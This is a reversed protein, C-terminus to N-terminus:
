KAGRSDWGRRRPAEFRADRPGYDIVSGLGSNSAHRVADALDDTKVDDLHDNRAEYRGHDRFLPKPIWPADQWEQEWGRTFLEKEAPRASQSGQDNRPTLAASPGPASAPKEAFRGGSIGTGAGGQGKDKARSQGNM